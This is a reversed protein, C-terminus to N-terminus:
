IRAQGRSKGEGTKHSYLNFVPATAVDEPDELFANSFKRKNASSPINLKSAPVPSLYNTASPPTDNSKLDARSPTMTTAGQSKPIQRSDEAVQLRSFGVSRKKYLNPHSWTPSERKKGKSAQAIRNASALISYRLPSILSSPNTKDDHPQPLPPSPPCATVPKTPSIPTWHNQQMHPIAPVLSAM